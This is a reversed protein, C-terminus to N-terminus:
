WSHGRSNMAPQIDFARPLLYQVKTTTTSVMADWNVIWDKIKDTKHM